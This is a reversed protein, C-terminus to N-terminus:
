QHPFHARPLEGSNQTGSTPFFTSPLLRQRLRQKQEQQHFRILEQSVPRKVRKMWGWAYGTMLLLGGIVYPKRRMQYCGRFLQWLPHGGLYYEQKGLMFHARLKGASATGMPRHHHCVQETFTRTKWGKMRATTVAIWDIGGGKVPTYGGIEEFCGRRFLQCAGSVHEISAFRYDYTVGEQAFPTGVLGLKPNEALKAMLFSFYDRDFSIDADLAAIADYSIHRIRAHGANFASVKAAFQRDRHEPMRVLEIWDYAAAYKGVIDDTGDTSGDSVIVWKLPRITQALMSQITLEIFKAENRAPTVVVYVPLTPM